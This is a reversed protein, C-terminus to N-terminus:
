FNSYIPTVQSDAAISAPTVIPQDQIAQWCADASALGTCRPHQRWREALLQVVSGDDVNLDRFHQERGLSIGIALFALRPLESCYLAAGGPQFLRDYPRGYYREAAHLMAATQAATLNRVRYVAYRGGKGRRTWAQLPTERVTAAAEVVYAAGARWRVIGMHTFRSGTAALIAASQRSKSEQFVLDGDRLPPPLPGSRVPVAVAAAAAVVGAALLRRRALPRHTPLVAM